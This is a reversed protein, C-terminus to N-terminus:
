ERNASAVVVVFAVGLFVIAIFAIGVFSWGSGGQSSVAPQEYTQDYTPQPAVYTQAPPTYYQPAPRVYVPPPAVYYSSQAMLASLIIADALPDYSHWRTGEYYGYGHYRHDYVVTYTHNEITTQTPIHEPRKAPESDYKSTYKDANKEKFQKTAEGRSQFSTGSSKAKEALARDAESLKAQPPANPKASWSGSRSSWSKVPASATTDPKKGEKAEQRQVPKAVVAPPPKPAPPTPPTPKSAPAASWAKAPSSWSTSRSPTTSRPPTPPSVRPAKGGSFGGRSQAASASGAILLLCLGFRIMKM